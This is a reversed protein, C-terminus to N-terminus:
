TTYLSPRFFLPGFRVLLASRKDTPELENDPLQFWNTYTQDSRDRQPEDTQLHQLYHKEWAKFWKKGLAVSEDSRLLVLPAIAASILLPLYTEFYIAILPLLSVALGTEVIATVSPVDNDISDRTSGFVWTPTEPLGDVM